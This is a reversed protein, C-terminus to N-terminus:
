EGGKLQFIDKNGRCIIHERGRDLISPPMQKQTSQNKREISLPVIQQRSKYPDIHWKLATEQDCM